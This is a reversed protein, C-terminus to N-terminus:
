DGQHTALCPLDGYLYVPDPRIGFLPFFNRSIFYHLPSRLTSPPACGHGSSRAAKAM